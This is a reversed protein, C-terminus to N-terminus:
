AVLTDDYHSGILGEISTYADGAAHGTNVTPDLMSAVVGAPADAYSAFDTGPGGNM